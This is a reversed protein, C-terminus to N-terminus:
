KKSSLLEFMAQAARQEAIKKSVGKAETTANCATVTCKVYFTKDHDPGEEKLVEYSPLAFNKSQLWEQLLSKSDRTATEPSVANLRETFWKLLLAQITNINSDIFIAGIIAELADELTSSRRFGGTNLEGFGLRLLDGLGMTRAMEALTEGKVLTARLRTLEGETATPFKRFLAEAITASLIADGLFELRENNDSGEFSRHTLAQELLNTNKFTYGLTESLRYLDIPNM